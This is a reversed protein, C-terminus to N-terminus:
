GNKNKRLHATEEKWTRGKKICEITNDIVDYIISLEKILRQDLYISVAQEATLKARYRKGRSRLGVAINCAQKVHPLMVCRAASIRRKETFRGGQGVKIPPHTKDLHKWTDGRRADRIADRSVIGIKDKLLSVMDGNPIHNNRPDRIFAVVDDTLLSKYSDEGKPLNCGKTTEGGYTSNYGFPTLTGMEEILRIEESIARERTIGSQLIVIKFSDEGHQIIARHLATKSGAKRKAHFKHEYWRRQMKQSTIGVYQMGTVSCTLLYVSFTQPKDIPRHNLSTHLKVVNSSETM